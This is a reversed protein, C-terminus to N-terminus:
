AEEVFYDWLESLHIWSSDGSGFYAELQRLSELSSGSLGSAAAIAAAPKKGDRLLAKVTEFLQKRPFEEKVSSAWRLADEMGDGPLVLDAAFGGAPVRAKLWEELNPGTHDFSELVAYAFLSKDRSKEKAVEALDKALKRMRAIPAKHNCFVMGAGHKLGQGGEAWGAALKFFTSLTWWGEWAPVVWLVEDGGWLLTEIRLAYDETLFGPRRQAARLFSALLDKRREKMRADYASLSEASTGAADAVKGFRNGDAYIVAMKRDLNGFGGKTSLEELNDTFIPLDPIGSYDKYFSQRRGRGYDKRERVSESLTDKQVPRLLDEECPRIGDVPSPFALSPSQMQKWRTEALLRERTASFGGRIDNKVAVSFTAHRRAGERLFAEVNARTKAADQGDKLAFLGVSAGRAILDLQGAFQRAVDDAAELLLLGGGRITSIDNTDLVFSSFNIGEMRLYTTM